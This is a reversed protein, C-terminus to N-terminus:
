MIVITIIINTIIFISVTNTFINIEENLEFLYYGLFFYYLIHIIYISM